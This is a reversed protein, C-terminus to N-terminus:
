NCIMGEWWLLSERFLCMRWMVSKKKFYLFLHLTISFLELNQNVKNIEWQQKIFHATLMFALSTSQHGCYGVLSM